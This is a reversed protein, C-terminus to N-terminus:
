LVLNWSPAPRWSISIGATSLSRDRRKGTTEALIGAEVLIEIARTTTSKTADVLGM